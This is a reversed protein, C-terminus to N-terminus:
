GLSQCGTRDPLGTRSSRRAQCRRCNCFSIRAHCNGRESFIRKPRPCNGARQDRRLFRGWSPSTSATTIQQARCGRPPTSAFAAWYVWCMGTESSSRYQDGKSTRWLNHDIKFMWVGCDKWLSRYQDAVRYSSTASSAQEGADMMRHSFPSYTAAM